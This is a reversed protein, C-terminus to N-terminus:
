WGRLHPGEGDAKGRSQARNVADSQDMSIELGGVNDKGLITRADDVETDSTGDFASGFQGM